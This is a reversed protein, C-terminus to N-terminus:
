LKVFQQVWWYGGDAGVIIGIGIHTYKDSIIHAHHESSEVWGAFAEAPTKTWPALNEAYSKMNPVYSKILDRTTEGTPSKHGYYHNDRMDDAKAQACDMLEPLVELAPLGVRVREENTLRVIEAKMEDVTMTPATQGAESRPPEDPLTQSAPPGPEQATGAGDYELGRRVIVAVTGRSVTGGDLGAGPALGLGRAKEVSTGYDWDTEPLRLWRLIVTCIMKPNVKGQPDFTTPTVGKVIGAEYCYEIYLLAWGPLDTFKNYRNEPDAFHEMGWDRWEAIGGPAGIFDLRTLIVALEARTLSKDLNLGGTEDGEFIGRGVLYAAATETESAAYAPPVGLLLAGLALASLTRLINKM